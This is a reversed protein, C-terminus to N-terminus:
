EQAARKVKVTFSDQAAGFGGPPVVGGCGAGAVVVTYKGRDGRLPSLQVYAHALNQCACGFPIIKVFAPTPPLLEFDPPADTLCPVTLEGIIFAEGESMVVMHDWPTRFPFFFPPGLDQAGSAPVVPSREQHERATLPGNISSASMGSLIVLAGVLINVSRM